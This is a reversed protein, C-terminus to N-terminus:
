QTKSKRYAIVWIIVIGAGSIEGCLTGLKDDRADVTQANASTQIIQRHLTFALCAVIIFLIGTYILAKKWWKM